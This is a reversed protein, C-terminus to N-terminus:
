NGLNLTEAKVLKWGLQHQIQTRDPLPENSDRRRRLWDRIEEKNPKMIKKM